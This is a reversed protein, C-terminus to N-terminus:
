GGRAATSRLPWHYEDWLAIRRAIPNAVTVAPLEQAPGARPFAVLACCGLFMVFLPRRFRVQM